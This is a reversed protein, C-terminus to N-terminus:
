VPAKAGPLGGVDLMRLFGDDLVLESLRKRVQYGANGIFLTRRTYTRWNLCASGRGTVAAHRSIGDVVGYVILSVWLACSRARSKM